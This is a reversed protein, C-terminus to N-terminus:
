DNGLCVKPKHVTVNPNADIAHQVKPNVKSADKQLQKLVPDDEPNFTERVEDEFVRRGTILNLLLCSLSPTPTSPGSFDLTFKKDRRSGYRQQLMDDEKTKIYNREKETQWNNLSYFDRQDDIVRTM